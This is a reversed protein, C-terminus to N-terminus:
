DRHERRGGHHRTEIDATDETTLQDTEECGETSLGETDETIIEM